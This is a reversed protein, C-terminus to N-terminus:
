TRLLLPRLQGYDTLVVADGYRTEGDADPNVVVVPPRSSAPLERVRALLEDFTPLEEETLILDPRERRVVEAAEAADAAALVRFGYRRLNRTMGARIWDIDEVVLIVPPGADPTDM